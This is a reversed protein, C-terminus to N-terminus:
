HIMNMEKAFQAEAMLEEPDTESLSSAEILSDVQQIMEMYYTAFEDSPQMVTLIDHESVRAENQAMITIPLWQQMYVVNKQQRNDAIVKVEMPNRLVVQGLRDNSLEAVVDEGSKFRVIKIEQQHM